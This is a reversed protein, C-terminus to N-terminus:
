FVFFNGPSGGDSHLMVAAYQTGLVYTTAGDILDSGARTITVANATNDIKKVKLPNGGRTAASQLTITVAGSTADVIVVEDQSTVTYNGTKSVVAPETRVAPPTIFVRRTGASFTIASGTSSSLFTDRSLTTGSSTYTGLDCEWAGLPVGNVDDDELCYYASNGNGLTAFSRFGTVAGGLTWPATTSTSTEMVRDYFKPASAAHPTPTLVAALIVAILWLRKNLM